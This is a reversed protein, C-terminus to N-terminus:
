LPDAEASMFLISQQSPTRAHRTLSSPTSARSLASSIPLSPARSTPTLHTEGVRSAIGACLFQRALRWKLMEDPNAIQRGTGLNVM